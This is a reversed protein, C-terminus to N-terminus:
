DRYTNFRAVPDSWKSYWTGTSNEARIRFIYWYQSNPLNAVTVQSGLTTGFNTWGHNGEDWREIRYGRTRSVPTWSLTVTNRATVEADIGDPPSLVLSVNINNSWGSWTWRYGVSCTTIGRQRVRFRHNPTTEPLDSITATGYGSSARLGTTRTSDLAIWEDGDWWQTDTGRHSYSTCGATPTYAPVTYTITVETPSVPTATITGTPRAVMNTQRNLATATSWDSFVRTSESRVRVKVPLYRPSVDWLYFRTATYDFTQPVRPNATEVPVWQEAHNDWIEAEYGSRAGTTADWSIVTNQDNWSHVVTLDAPAAPKRTVRISRSGQEASDLLATVRIRYVSVDTPLGTLKVENVDSTDTSFTTWEEESNQYDVRHSDAQAFCDWDLQVEGGGNSDGAFSARMVTIDAPNYTELLLRYQNSENETHGSGTLGIYYTETEECTSFHFSGGSHVPGGPHIPGVAVGDADYMQVNVRGRQDKSIYYAKIKYSTGAAMPSQYWDDDNAPLDGPTSPTYQITGKTIYGTTTTDGALDGSTPEEREEQLHHHVTYDGTFDGNRSGVEVYVATYTIVFARGDRHDKSRWQYVSGNTNLIRLIRLDNGHQDGRTLRVESVRDGNNTVKIWDKDGAEGIASSYTPSDRGVSATTTNDAPLDADVNSESTEEEEEIFEPAAPVTFTQEDSWDSSWPEDDSNPDQNYRARTKYKYTDGPTLGTLTLSNATPYQNGRQAENADSFSLYDLNEQAWALRYDDPTEGDPETWSIPYDVTEQGYVYSGNGAIVLALAVIILLVAVFGLTGLARSRSLTGM